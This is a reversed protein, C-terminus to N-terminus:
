QEIPALIGFLGLLYENVIDKAGFEYIDNHGAKPIFNSQKPENATKYLTKGMGIPVVDDDEGHMLLLPMHVNKIKSLSDYKEKMMSRVPLWSYHEAGVDILSTYPAELILARAKGYEVAIQVAVGTGLSEGYFVVSSIPIEKELLANIATRADEYLGEENPTGPNGYGRYGVLFIGYGNDAFSKYKHVRLGWGGANGQFYVITLRDSSAPPHYWSDLTLNDKTTATIKEFGDVGYEIPTFPRSDPSYTLFGQLYFVIVVIAVYVLALQIIIIAFRHIFTADSNM